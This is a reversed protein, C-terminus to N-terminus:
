SKFRLCFSQADAVCNLFWFIFAICFDSCIDQPLAVLPLQEKTQSALKVGQFCLSCFVLFEKLLTQWCHSLLPPFCCWGLHRLQCLDRFVISNTVSLMFKNQVLVLWVSSWSYSCFIDRRFLFGVSHFVGCFDWLFGGFQEKAQWTYASFLWKGRRSM